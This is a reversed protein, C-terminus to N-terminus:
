SRGLQDLTQKLRDTLALCRSTKGEESESSTLADTMEQLLAQSQHRISRLSLQEELRRLSNEARRIAEHVAQRSVGEEEAVEALSLDANVTLDLLRQQKETLLGGYLDLLEGLEIHRLWVEDTNKKENL